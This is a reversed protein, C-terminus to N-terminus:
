QAPIGGLYTKWISRAVAGADELLHKRRKEDFSKRREADSLLAYAEQVERFLMAADPASNKDPHYIAARRRYAQKIEASTANSALGLTDYPDKLAYTIEQKNM